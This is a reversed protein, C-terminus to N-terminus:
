LAESCWTCMAHWNEAKIVPVCVIITYQQRKPRKEIAILIMSYRWM